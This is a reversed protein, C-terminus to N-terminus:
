GVVCYSLYESNKRRRVQEEWEEKAECHNEQIMALRREDAKRQVEVARRHEEQKRAMRDRSAKDAEMREMERRQQDKLAEEQRAISALYERRETDYRQREQEREKKMQEKFARFEEEKRKDVEKLTQRLKQQEEAGKSISDQLADIQEKIENQLDKKHEKMAKQMQERMAELKALNRKRERIINANLEYAASTEDIDHGKNVMEDQIDLTVKMHLSLIYGIVDLASERTNAYRFVKSGKKCMLGWLEDTEILEGERSEGEEPTVKSWMSTALVVSQYAKEGCLKKFM